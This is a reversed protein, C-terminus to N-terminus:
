HSKGDGCHKSTSIAPAIHSQLDQHSPNYRGNSKQPKQHGEHSGFMEKDVYQESCKWVVDPSTINQNVLECIKSTIKLHISHAVAAAESISIEREYVTTAM